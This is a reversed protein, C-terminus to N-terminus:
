MIYTTVDVNDQLSYSTPNDKTSTYFGIISYGYNDTCHLMANISKYELADLTEGYFMEKVHCSTSNLVTIHLLVYRVLVSPFNSAEYDVLPVEHFVNTALDFRVGAIESAKRFDILIYADASKSDNHSIVVSNYRWDTVTKSDSMYGSGVTIETGNCRLSGTGSVTLYRSYDSKIDHSRMEETNWVYYLLGKDKTLGYFLLCVPEESIIIVDLQLPDTVDQQIYVNGGSQIHKIIDKPATDLVYLGYGKYTLKVYLCETKKGVLDVNAKVADVDSKVADVESKVADVDSKVRRFKSAIANLCTKIFELDPFM